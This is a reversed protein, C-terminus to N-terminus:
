RTKAPRIKRIVPEKTVVCLGGEGAPKEKELGQVKKARKKWVNSFFLAPKGPM